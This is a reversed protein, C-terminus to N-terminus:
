DHHDLLSLVWADDDSFGGGREGVKEEFLETVKVIQGGHARKRFPAGPLAGMRLDCAAELAAESKIVVMQILISGTMRLSAM